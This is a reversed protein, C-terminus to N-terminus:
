KDSKYGKILQITAEKLSSVEPEVSVVTASEAGCSIVGCISDYIINDLGVIPLGTKEKICHLNKARAPETDTKFDHDFIASLAIYDAGEQEAFLAEQSTKVTYGIIKDIPLLKRATAIPIDEAGIHIGDADSAIAIDIHGKIIFLANYEKCLKGIEIVEQLLKDKPTTKDSLLIIKAESNLAQKAVETLNENKVYATDIIVVRGNIKASKDKRLLKSIITKETTYLQFRAKEFDAPNLEIGPTKALEEIVRLSQEIRRCNAIVSTHLSRKELQQEVKIDAGVDSNAQRAQILQKKFTFDVDELDHRMEKLQRSLTADNLILRAIDELLRLSEGIRNLNADIIRLTQGAFEESSNM